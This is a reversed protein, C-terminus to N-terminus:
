KARLAYDALGNQVQAEIELSVACGIVIEQITDTGFAVPFRPEIKKESAHFLCCVLGRTSRTADHRQKVFM